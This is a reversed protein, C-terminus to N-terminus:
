NVRILKPHYVRVLFFLWQERNLLLIAKLPNPAKRMPPKLTPVRTYLYRWIKMMVSEQQQPEQQVPVMAEAHPKEDPSEAM